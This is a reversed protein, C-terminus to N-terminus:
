VTVESILYEVVVPKGAEVVFRGAGVFTKFELPAFLAHGSEFKVHTFVNGFPTTEADAAGTLVKGIAPTIAITGTYEYHLLADGQQLISNVKLRLHKGDVDPRIYDAGHLVKANVQIPYSPESM